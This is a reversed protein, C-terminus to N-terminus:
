HSLLDLRKNLSEVSIGTPPEPTPDPPKPIEKPLKMRLSDLLCNTVARRSFMYSPEAAAEDPQRRHDEFLIGDAFHLAVAKNASLWTEADLMHSLRARSLGTRLEYATLIADKVESLMEIAKRMEETDGIVATFPNHLMMLSTPAMLVRTGGMAIVSAASAAVGNIKITVDWPYDMLLSYIKSAAVVDGGPSSLWITIPGSGSFLEDKFVAPTIDDDLWAQEAIVGELYLVREDSDADRAWNWFRNIKNM